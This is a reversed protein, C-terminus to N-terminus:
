LAVDGYKITWTKSFSQKEPNSLDVEDKFTKECPIHFYPPKLYSFSLGNVGFSQGDLYSPVQIQYVWSRFGVIFIAYPVPHGEKRRFLCVFGGNIAEGNEIFQTQMTLPLMAHISHDRELLWKITGQFALLETEDEILSLAIKVLTKYVAVPIHSEFDLTIKISNSLEDFFMNSEPQIFFEIDQQEKNVSITTFGDKSKYSAIKNKSGKIRSFTRYPKTYKGFHDELNESFFKNCSDCEDLLIIRKNGLLQPIAHSVNLFTTESKDKKCFRCKIGKGIFKNEGSSFRDFSLIEYNEDFFLNNFKNV